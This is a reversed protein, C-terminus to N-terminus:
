LGLAQDLVPRRPGQALKALTPATPNPRARASLPPARHGSSFERRASRHFRSIGGLRRSRVPPRQPESLFSFYVFFIGILDRIGCFFFFFFFGARGQALTFRKTEGTLLHARAM